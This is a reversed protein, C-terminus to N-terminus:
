DQLARLLEVSGIGEQMQENTMVSVVGDQFSICRVLIHDKKSVARM